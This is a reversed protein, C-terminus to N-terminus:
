RVERAIQEAATRIEDPGFGMARALRVARRTLKEALKIASLWDMDGCTETEADAGWMTIRITGDPTTSVRMHGAPALPDASM